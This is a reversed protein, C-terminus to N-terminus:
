CGQRGGAKHAKERMGPWWRDRAARTQRAGNKAHAAGIQEYGVTEGVDHRHENPTGSHYKKAKYAMRLLMGLLCAPTAATVRTIMVKNRIPPRNLGSAGDLRWQWGVRFLHTTEIEENGILSSYIAGKKRHEYASAEEISKRSTM